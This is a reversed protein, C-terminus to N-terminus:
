YDKISGSESFEKLKEKPPEDALGSSLAYILKSSAHSPSGVETMPGSRRQGLRSLTARKKKHIDGISEENAAEELKIVEHERIDEKDDKEEEKEKEPDPMSEKKIKVFSDFKVKAEGENKELHEKFNEKNKEKEVDEQSATLFEMAVQVGMDVVAGIDSDIFVDDQSGSGLDNSTTKLADSEDTQVNIKQRSSIHCATHAKGQGKENM